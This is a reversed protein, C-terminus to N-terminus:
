ELVRLRAASERAAGRSTPLRISFTTGALEDTTFEVKGHLYHEGLLKMSYTGIGRRKEGKTTVSRKFLRAAVEGAIRGPNNVTFDIFHDMRSCKVTVTAGPPCAELANKLMNTLVRLLLTRDTDIEDLCAEYTVRRGHTAPHREFAVRLQAMLAETSHTETKVSIRENEADLLAQHSTVEDVVRGILVGMEGLTEPESLIEAEALDRYASLAGLTNMIDHFFTRELSERRKKDAIDHMTQVVYRGEFLSIPAVRVWFERTLAIGDREVHLECEYEVAHQERFAEVIYRTTGCNECRKSTGCGSPADQANVCAFAEGVRLGFASEIDGPGLQFAKMAGENLAVIQREENLVMMVCGVSELLQSVIPSQAVTQIARRLEEPTARAAPAFHTTQPDNGSRSDM